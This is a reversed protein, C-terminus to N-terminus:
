KPTNKPISVHPYVSISTWRTEMAYQRRSFRGTDGKISRTADTTLKTGDKSHGAKLQQRVYQQQVQLRAELREGAGSKVAETQEKGYLLIKRTGTKAHM